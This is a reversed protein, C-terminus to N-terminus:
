QDIEEAIVPTRLLRAIEAQVLGHADWRGALIANRHAYNQTEIVNARAQALIDSNCNDTM